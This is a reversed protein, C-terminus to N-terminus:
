AANIKDLLAVLRAHGEDRIRMLERNEARLLEIEDAAQAMLREKTWEDCNRRDLLRMRLLPILDSM